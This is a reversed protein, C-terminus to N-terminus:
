QLVLESNEGGYCNYNDFLAEVNDIMEERDMCIKVSSSGASYTPKLVVKNLNASDYFDIAEELSTVVQGKISRLGCESIREQMKNKLTMAEINEYSNGLLNLDDALRTALDVGKESGPLILIPDLERVMELTEEYTDKETILIYDETILKLDEQKHYNYTNGIENDISKLDLVIPNYNRDAIDQIYNIGTSMCEVIIINEM